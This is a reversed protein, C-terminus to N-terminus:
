DFYSAKFEEGKYKDSIQKEELTISTKRSYYKDESVQNMTM